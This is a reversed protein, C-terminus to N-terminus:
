KINSGLTFHSYLMTVAFTSLTNDQSMDLEIPGVGVPWCNHIQFDRIVASGNTDLQQVTWVNNAFLDSPDPKTTTNSSHDNISNQWKHFAKYLSGTSTGTGTKVDDLVTIIWPQYMRDGPYNVTRGRYNIPIVGTVSTPLSAARIHFDTLATSQTNTNNNGATINPITGSVRFRNVRTGGNFGTIFNSISQNAM